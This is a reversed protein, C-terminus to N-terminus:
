LMCIIRYTWRLLMPRGLLSAAPRAIPTTQFDSSPWNLLPTTKKGFCQLKTCYFSSSLLPFFFFLFRGGWPVPSVKETPLLQFPLKSDHLSQSCPDM